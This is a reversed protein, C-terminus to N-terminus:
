AQVGSEKSKKASRRPFHRQRGTQGAALLTTPGLVPLLYTFGLEVHLNRIASM